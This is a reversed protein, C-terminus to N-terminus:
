GGGRGEGAEELLREIARLVRVAGAAPTKPGAVENQQIEITERTAAELAARLGREYGALESVSGITQTVEDRVKNIDQWWSM